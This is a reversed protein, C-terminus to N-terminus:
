FLHFNEFFWHGQALGKLLQSLRLFNFHIGRAAWGNFSLAKM